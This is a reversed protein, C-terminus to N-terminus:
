KQSVFRAAEVLDSGSQGGPGPFGQYGDWKPSVFAVQKAYYYAIIPSKQIVIEQADRILKGRKQVDFEQLADNALKDM